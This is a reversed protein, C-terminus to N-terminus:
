KLVTGTEINNGRIYEEVKMTKKGPFRVENVMVAGDAAKVLMGEAGVSLIEGIDGKDCPVPMASVIKVAEEKYYTYALPYPNMGRILNCVDKASMSWDIHADEKTIMHAYILEGVQKRPVISDFNRLAECLVEGGEQTMRDFLEGSTENEGIKIIKELLIDGTDLGEDMLMVTAATETEGDIVARQIPAAGRYKPLKSAHMNICGYKPYKLVYEPLIRGYAVVVIIDPKLEELVPLLEGNKLTEPQYVPIDYKMAAAKVETPVLKHGRGKPKDVRTVAGVINFGENILKEMCGAAIDPTGMFLIRM